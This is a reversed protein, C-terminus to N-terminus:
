LGHYVMKPISDLSYSHNRISVLPFSYFRVQQYAHATEKVLDCETSRWQLLPCVDSKEGVIPIGGLQKRIGRGYLYDAVIILLCVTIASVLAVLVFGKAPEWKSFFDM